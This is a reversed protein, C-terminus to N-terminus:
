GGRDALHGEPGVTTAGVTIPTQAEIEAAARFLDSIHTFKAM